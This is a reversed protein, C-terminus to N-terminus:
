GEQKRECLEILIGPTSKPHIFAIRAGHAGQRPTHDIMQVGKAKLSAIAAEVDDVGLALHHIGQGRKAIFKAIPSDESTPELLELSSEGAPFFAARVKQDAVEESGACTMGIKDQYLAIAEELNSVAIGVHDIKNMM